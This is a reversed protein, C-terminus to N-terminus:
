VREGLGAARHAAIARDDLEADTLFRPPPLPRWRPHPIMGQVNFLPNLTRILHAEARAAERRTRYIAYEVRATKSEWPSLPWRQSRHGAFRQFLDSTMGVYLLDGCRCYARYVYTGDPTTPILVEGRAMPRPMHQPVASM